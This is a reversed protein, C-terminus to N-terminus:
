LLGGVIGITQWTFGSWGGGWGIDRLDIKIGDELISRKRGRLGIIVTVLHFYRRHKFLDIWCAEGYYLHKGV